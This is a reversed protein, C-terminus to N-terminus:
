PGARVRCACALYSPPWALHALPSVVLELVSNIDLTVSSQWNM